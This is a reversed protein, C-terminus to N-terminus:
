QLGETAPKRPVIKFRYRNAPDAIYDGVEVLSRVSEEWGCAASLMGAAVAILQSLANAVDQANGCQATEVYAVVLKHACQEVEYQEIM